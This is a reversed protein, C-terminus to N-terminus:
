SFKVETIRHQQWNLRCMSMFYQACVCVYMCTWLSSNDHRTSVQAQNVPWYFEKPCNVVWDLSGQVTKWTCFLKKLSQKQRTLAWWTMLASIVVAFVVCKFNTFKKLTITVDRIKAFMNTSSFDNCIVSISNDLLCTKNKRQHVKGRGPTNHKVHRTKFQYSSWSSEERWVNGICRIINFRHRSVKSCLRLFGSWTRWHRASHPNNLYLIDSVPYMFFRIIFPVQRICLGKTM